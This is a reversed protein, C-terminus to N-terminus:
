DKGTRQWERHPKSAVTRAWLSENWEMSAKIGRAVSVAETKKIPNLVKAERHQKVPALKPLRKLNRFSPTYQIPTHKQGTNREATIYQGTNSWEIHGCVSKIIHGLSGSDGTPFSSSIGTTPPDSGHSFLLHSALAVSLRQLSQGKQTERSRIACSLIFCFSFAENKRTGDKRGHESM